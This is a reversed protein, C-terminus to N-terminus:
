FSFIVYWYNVISSIHFVHMLQKLHLNPILQSIFVLCVRVSIKQPLNYVIMIDRISM